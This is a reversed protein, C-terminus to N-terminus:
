RTTRNEPRIWQPLLAKVIKVNQLSPYESAFLKVDEDFRDKVAVDFTGSTFGVVAADILPFLGARVESDAKKERLVVDMHGLYVVSHPKIDTSLNIPLLTSAKYFVSQYDTFICDLYNSGADLDFSLLYENYRNIERKYPPGPLYIGSGVCGTNGPCIFVSSLGLQYNPKNQNSIKVSLLAISKSSLDIQHQAKNLAMDRACGGMLFTLILLPIAIARPFELWFKTFM